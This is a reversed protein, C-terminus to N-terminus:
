EWIREQDGNASKNSTEENNIEQMTEIKCLQGKKDCKHRPEWPGRCRFCIGKKLIDEKKKQAEKSSCQHGRSWKGNCFYCEKERQDKRSDENRHETKRM